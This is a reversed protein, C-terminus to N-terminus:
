RVQDVSLTKLELVNREMQPTVKGKMTAFDNVPIGLREKIQMVEAQLKDHKDALETVIALTQKLQSKLDELEDGEFRVM